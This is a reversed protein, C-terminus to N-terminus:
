AIPHVGISDLARLAEGDWLTPQEPHACHWGAMRTIVSDPAAGFAAAFSTAAQEKVLPDVESLIYRVPINEAAFQGERLPTLNALARMQGRRGSNPFFNQAHWYERIWDNVQGEIYFNKNLRNFAAMTLVNLARPWRWLSGYQIPGKIDDPATVGCESIIGGLQLPTLYDRQKLPEIMATAVASGMSMGVIVLRKCGMRVVQDAIQIAETQVDFPGTTPHEVVLVRGSQALKPALMKTVLRGSIVHGPIVVILTDPQTGDSASASPHVLFQAPSMEHSRM